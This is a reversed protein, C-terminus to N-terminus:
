FKYKFDPGFNAEIKTDSKGLSVCPFLDAASNAFLKATDLRRGNKTYIMQGNKLNVGCGIVDGVGFPPKGNIYPRGDTDHACGEVELGWFTGWSNYGYTGEHDGANTGLPMQKTALGIVINGTTKELIKVEFYPNEPMRKKARVSSWGSKEGNYQVILRDPGILALNDHCATSDWRNEPILGIERMTAVTKQLDVINPQQEKQYQELKVIKQEIEVLKNANSLKQEELEAVVMAQVSKLSEDMELRMENLQECRRWQGPTSISASNENKGGIEVQQQKQYKEVMKASLEGNLQSTRKEGEKKLSNGLNSNVLMQELANLRQLLTKQDSQILLFQDISVLKQQDENLWGIKEELKDYETLISM